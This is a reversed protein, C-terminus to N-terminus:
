WKFKTIESKPHRGAKSARPRRGTRGWEARWQKPNPFGWNFVSSLVWFYGVKVNHTLKNHM